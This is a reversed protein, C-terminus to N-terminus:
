CCLVCCVPSQVCQLLTWDYLFIAQQSSKCGIIVNLHEWHTVGTWLLPSLESLEGLVREFVGVHLEKITRGKSGTFLFGGSLLIKPSCYFFIAGGEFGATVNDHACLSDIAALWEFLNNLTKCLNRKRRFLTSLLEVERAGGEETILEHRHCSELKIALM